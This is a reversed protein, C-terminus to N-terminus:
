GNHTSNETCHGLQQMLRIELSGSGGNLSAWGGRGMVAVVALRLLPDGEAERPAAVPRHHKM